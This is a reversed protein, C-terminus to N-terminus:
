KLKNKVVPSVSGTSSADFTAKYGDETKEVTVEGTYTVGDMTMNTGEALTVKGSKLTVTGDEAVHLKTGEGKATYEKDGITVKGDNPVEVDAGESDTGPATVTIGDGSIKGKEPDIGEVYLTGSEGSGKGVKVTGETLTINGDQDATLSASKEAPVEYTGVSTDDPQAGYTFKSSADATVTINGADDTLTYVNGEAASDRKVGYASGNTSGGKALAEALGNITGTSEIDKPQDNDLAYSHSSEGKEVTVSDNAKGKVKAKAGEAEAGGATVELGETGSVTVEEGASKTKVKGGDPLIVSGETLTAPESGDETTLTAGASGATYTHDGVKIEGGNPVDVTGSKLTVNGDKDVELELEGDGTNTYTTDGITVSGGKPVTVTANDGDAVVKVKGEGDGDGKDTITTNGFGVSSAAGGANTSDLEVAGDTLKVKGDKDFEFINNGDAAGEPVNYVTDNISVSGGQPVTAQGNTNEGSVPVKVEVDKGETTAENKVHVSKGDGFDVNTEGNAAGEESSPLNVTGKAVSANGEEDLVVTAEGTYEVGGITAKKGSEIKVEAKGSEADKTVTVAADTAEVKKGNVYVDKGQPVDVAGSALEVVDEGPEGSTSVLNLKTNEAKATYETGSVTVKDGSTPIDVTGKVTGDPVTTEAGDAGKTITINGTNEDGPKVTFGGESTGELKFGDAPGKKAPVTASTGDPAEGFPDDLNYSTTGTYTVGDIAVGTSSSSVSATATADGDTGEITIDVSGETVGVDHKKVGAEGYAVHAVHEGDGESGPTYTTKGEAAGITVQGDSGIKVEPGNYSDGTKTDTFTFSAGDTGKITVDKGTEVATKVSGGGVVQITSGTAKARMMAEKLTKVPNKSTGDNGDSGTTPDVYIDGTNRGRYYEPLLGGGNDDILKFQGGVDSVWSTVVDPDGTRVFISIRKNEFPNFPKNLTVTYWGSTRQEDDSKVIEEGNWWNQGESTNGPYFQTGHTYVTLTDPIVVLCYHFRFGNYVMTGSLKATITVSTINGYEDRTINTIKQGSYDTARATLTLAPMLGVVMCVSLAFALLKYLRKKM